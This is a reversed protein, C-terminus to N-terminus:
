ARGLDAANLAHRVVLFESVDFGWFEEETIAAVSM